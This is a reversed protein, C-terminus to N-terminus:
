INGVEVRVTGGGWERGCGRDVLSNTRGGFSLRNWGLRTSDLGLQWYHM